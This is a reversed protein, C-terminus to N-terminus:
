SRVELLRELEGLAIRTSRGIKVARIAGREILHYVHQRSVGLAEAAEAPSFALREVKKM